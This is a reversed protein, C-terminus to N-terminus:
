LKDIQKSAVSWYTQQRHLELGGNSSAYEIEASLRDLELLNTKTFQLAQLYM